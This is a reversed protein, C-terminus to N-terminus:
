AKRIKDGFWILDSKIIEAEEISHLALGCAASFISNKLNNSNLIKKTSNKFELIFDNSREIEKIEKDTRFIGFCFQGGRALFKEISKQHEDSEISKLSLASDFSLIDIGLDFLASWNTNSCCHLGVRINEKKLSQILLKLEQYVIQHHPHLISLTYFGPEDLFLIPETGISRMKLCYSLARALILQYIQSGLEPYRLLPEGEEIQLAWQATFPGTIQVKALKTKREELEWLFSSWTSSTESTPEFDSFRNIESSNFASSLKKSFLDKKESWKSINIFTSGDEEIVLGPLGHLAQPLMFELANKKPLQPFFPLSHSFSYELAADVSVHPLSGIGTTLALNNDIIKM